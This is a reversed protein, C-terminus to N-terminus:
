FGIESNIKKDELDKKERLAMNKEDLLVRFVALNVYFEKYLDYDLCYQLLEKFSIPDNASLIFNMIMNFNDNIELKLKKDFM